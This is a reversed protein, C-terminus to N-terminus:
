PNDKFMQRVGFAKLTWYELRWYASGDPCRTIKRLGGLFRVYECGKRKVIARAKLVVTRTLVGDLFEDRRVDERPTM